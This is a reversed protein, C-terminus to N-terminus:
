VARDVGYCFGFANALRITVQREGEGFSECNGGARIRDVLGSHYEAQVIPEIQKSLGFGRRFYTSEM